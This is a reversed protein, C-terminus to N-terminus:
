LLDVKWSRRARGLARRDENWSVGRRLACVQRRCDWMAAGLMLFLAYRPGCGRRVIDAEITLTV